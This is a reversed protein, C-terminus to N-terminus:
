QEAATAECPADDGPSNVVLLWVLTALGIVGSQVSVVFALYEHWQTLVDGCGQGSKLVASLAFVLGICLLAVTVITAARQAPERFANRFYGFEIGLTVLLLPIVGAVQSFFAPNVAGRV